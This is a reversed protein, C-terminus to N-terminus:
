ESEAEVVLVYAGATLGKVEQWEWSADLGELLDAPPGDTTVECVWCLPENGKVSGHV